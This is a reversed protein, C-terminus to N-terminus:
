PLTEEELIARAALKLSRVETQLHQAKRMAERLCGRLRKSEVAWRVAVAQLALAKEYEAESLSHQYELARDGANM